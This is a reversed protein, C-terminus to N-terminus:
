SLSSLQHTGGEVWEGTRLDFWWGDPLLVSRDSTGPEVLPAQLLAPGILFQDDIRTFRQDDFDHIMPRM